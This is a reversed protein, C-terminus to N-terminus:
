PRRGGPPVGGGPIGGLGGFGQLLQNRAEPSMSQFMQMGSQMMQGMMRSRTQPDMQTFMEIGKTMMETMQQPSLQMMLEMQRKQMAMLEDVPSNGAALRSAYLIYIPKPSFQQSTLAEEFNPPKPFNKLFSTAKSTSPNEMVIGTQEITDLSRVVNALKEPSVGSTGEIQNMYVKRWTAGPINRALVDLAADVTGAEAPAKPLTPVFLQPDIVVRTEFAKGLDNGIATLEKNFNKPQIRQAGTGPRGGTQGPRNLQAQAGTVAMTAVFAGAIFLRKM